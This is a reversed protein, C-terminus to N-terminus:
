REEKTIEACKLKMKLEIIDYRATSRGALYGVVYSLAILIPTIYVPMDM